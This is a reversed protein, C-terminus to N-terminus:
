SKLLMPLNLYGLIGENAKLSYAIKSVLGVPHHTLDAERFCLNVNYDSGTALDGESALHIVICKSAKSMAIGENTKLFFAVEAM